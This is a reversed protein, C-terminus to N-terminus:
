ARGSRESQGECVLALRSTKNAKYLYGLNGAANKSWKEETSLAALLPAQKAQLHPGASSQAAPRFSGSVMVKSSRRHILLGSNCLLSPFVPSMNKM